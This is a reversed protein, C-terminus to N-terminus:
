KEQADYSVIQLFHYCALYMKMKNIPYLRLPWSYTLAYSILPLLNEYM